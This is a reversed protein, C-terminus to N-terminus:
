KQKSDKENEVLWLQCWVIGIMRYHAAHQHTESLSTRLKLQIGQEHSKWIWPPTMEVEVVDCACYKQACVLSDCDTFMVPQKKEHVNYVNNSHKQSIQKKRVLPVEAFEAFRTQRWPCNKMMKKVDDFKPV